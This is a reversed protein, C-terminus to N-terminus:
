VTDDLVRETEADWQACETLLTEVGECWEAYPTDPIKADEGSGYLGMGSTPASHPGTHGQQREIARIAAIVPHDTGLTWGTRAPATTRTSVSEEPVTRTPVWLVSVGYVALNDVHQALQTTLPLGDRVCRARVADPVLGPETDLTRGRSERLVDQATQMLAQLRRQTATDM